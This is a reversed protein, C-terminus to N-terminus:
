AHMSNGTSKIKQAPAPAQANQIPQVKPAYRGRRKPRGVPFGAPGAPTDRTHRQLIWPFGEHHKRYLTGLHWCFLHMLYIGAALALYATYWRLWPPFVVGAAAGAQALWNIGLFGGIWCFAAALWIVLLLLYEVGCVVAVGVLRDPRANAVTGSTTTTLLAAPFLIMGLVFMLGILALGATQPMNRFNFVLLLSPGFCIGIALMFQTFPGWLDEQWGMHRLPTPLEDKSAPGTEDIVNVFHSLLLGHWVLWAPAFLFFGFWLAVSMFQGVVHALFIFLMVLLNAPRLLRLPLSLFELPEPVDMGYAITQPPQPALRAVPISEAPPAGDPKIELERVREGTDPDYKPAASIATVDPNYAPTGAPPPEPALTGRLDIPQGDSDYHDKTFVRTLEAIREPDPQLSPAEDLKYVGGDDLNELDSLLPVDNLRGCQPCQVM